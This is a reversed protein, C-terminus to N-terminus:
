TNPPAIILENELNAYSQEVSFPEQELAILRAAMEKDAVDSYDKEIQRLHPECSAADIRGYPEFAREVATMKDIM